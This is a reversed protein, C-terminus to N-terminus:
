RDEGPQWEVREFVAEVPESAQAFIGAMTGTFRGAESTALATADETAVTRWGAGAERVLFELSRARLEMRLEVPGAQAVRWMGM